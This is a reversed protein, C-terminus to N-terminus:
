HLVFSGHLRGSTALIYRLQGDGFISNETTCESLVLPDVLISMKRNLSVKFINGFPCVIATERLFIGDDLNM